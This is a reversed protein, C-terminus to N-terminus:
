SAAHTDEKLWKWQSNPAVGQATTLITFNFTASVARVTRQNLAKSISNILHHKTVTHTYDISNITSLIFNKM